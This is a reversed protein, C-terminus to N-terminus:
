KSLQSVSTSGPDTFTLSGAHSPHFHEGLRSSSLSLYTSIPGLVLFFFCLDFTVLFFPLVSFGHQTSFGTFFHTPPPSSVVVRAAAVTFHTAVFPALLFSPSPPPSPSSSLFLLLSVYQVSLPYTTSPAHHIIHSFHSHTPPIQSPWHGQGFTRFKLPCRSDTPLHM